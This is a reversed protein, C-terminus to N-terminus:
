MGTPDYGQLNSNCLSILDALERQQNEITRQVQQLKLRQICVCVCVYVCGRVYVYVYLVCVCVCVRVRVRVRVRVYMYVCVCVCMWVCVCVCLMYRIPACSFLVFQSCLHSLPIPPAHRFVPSKNTLQFAVQVARKTKCFLGLFYPIHAFVFIYVM